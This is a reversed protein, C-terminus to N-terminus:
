VDAAGAAAIMRTYFGEGCALDLVRQDTLSGLLDFFTFAEIYHRLPTTKTAQYERAIGDYQATM